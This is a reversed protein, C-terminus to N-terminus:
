GDARLAPFNENIVSSTSSRRRIGPLDDSVAFDRDERQLRQAVQASDSALAVHSTAEAQCRIGLDGPRIEAASVERGQVAQSRSSRPRKWAPQARATGLPSHPATQEMNHIPGATYMATERWVPSRRGRRGRRPERCFCPGRDGEATEVPVM